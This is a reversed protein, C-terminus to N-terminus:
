PALIVSRTLHTPQDPNRGQAVARAVATRQVYVLDALPDRGSELFRAGTAAVQAGLGVPAAGFMWVARGARAISMPGHRYDMAPYSEAWSSSTERYKLAAEHAVGVTWGRGLFTVQEAGILEDDLPEALAARAQDVSPQVDQGFAARFLAMTTTAFRTQVVSREDAYSLDVVEDALGYAPTDLDGLVVVTPTRGRLRELLEVVESTTGSRTLAIVRDYPRHDPFESAAFADSEGFGHSERWHALVQGVFWSTGCGVFAVREGVRTVRAPLAAAEGAARSWCDPQSAIEEDVFYTM